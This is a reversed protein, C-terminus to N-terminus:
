HWAALDLSMALCSAWALVSLGRGIVFQKMVKLNSAILMLIVMIPVAVVGNIVASWFLAKMPSIPTFNLLLGVVTALGITTYFAKAKSPEVSLGVKWRAAEGVAYVASGALVPVALLGTGIVVTEFIIKAFQMNGSDDNSHTGVLLSLSPWSSSKVNIIM